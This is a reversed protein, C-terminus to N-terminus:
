RFKPSREIDPIISVECWYKSFVNLIRNFEDFDVPKNIFSTAGEAYGKAVDTENNSTTLFIVPLFNLGPDKRIERLVEFGNKKPMNIDLLVMDPRQVNQFAAEKRLFEMAQVGDSVIGTLQINHFKSFAEKIIIIDDESDEVLLINIIRENTMNM